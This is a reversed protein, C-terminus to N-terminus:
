DRPDRSAYVTKNQNNGIDDTLHGRFKFFSVPWPHLISLAYFGFFCLIEEFTQSFFFFSFDLDSYTM